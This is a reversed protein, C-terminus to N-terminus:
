WAWYGPVWVWEWGNWAWGPEMWVPQVVVVTPPAVIVQYGGRVSPVHPRPSHGPAAFGSRVGLVSPGGHFNVGLVSPASASGNWARSAGPVALLGALALGLTFLRKM